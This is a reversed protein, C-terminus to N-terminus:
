QSIKSPRISKDRHNIDLNKGPNQRDKNLGVRYQCYTAHGSSSLSLHSPRGGQGFGLEKENHVQLPRLIGHLELFSMRRSEGEWVRSFIDAGEPGEGNQQVIM